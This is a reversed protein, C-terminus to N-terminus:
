TEKFSTWQTPRYLGVVRRDQETMDDYHGSGSGYNYYYLGSYTTKLFTLSEDTGVEYSHRTIGAVYTGSDDSPNYDTFTDSSGDTLRVTINM